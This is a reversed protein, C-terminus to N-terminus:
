RQMRVVAGAGSMSARALIEAKIADCGLNLEAAQRGAMVHAFGTPMCAVVAVSSIKGELAQALAEKLLDVVSIQDGTLQKTGNPNLIKSM